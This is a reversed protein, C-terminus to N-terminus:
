CREKKSQNKGRRYACILLIPNDVRLTPNDVRDHQKIVGGVRAVFRKDGAEATLDPFPQLVDVDEGHREGLRRQRGQTVARSHDADLPSAIVDGEVIVGCRSRGVLQLPTDVPYVRFDCV